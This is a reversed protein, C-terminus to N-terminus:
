TSSCSTRWCSVTMAVGRRSSCILSSSACSSIWPTAPSRRSPRGMSRRRRPQRCSGACSAALMNPSASCGRSSPTMRTPDDLDDSRWRLLRPSCPCTRPRGLVRGVRRSRRPRGSTCGAPCRAPGSGLRKAGLGGGQEPHRRRYPDSPEEDEEDFTVFVEWRMGLVDLGYASVRYEGAGVRRTIESISTPGSV